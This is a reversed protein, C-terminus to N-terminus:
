LDDLDEEAFFLGHQCGTARGKEIQEEIWERSVLGQPDADLPYYCRRTADDIAEERTAGSGWIVVGDTLIVEKNMDEYGGTM